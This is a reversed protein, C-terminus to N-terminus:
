FSWISIPIFFFLILSPAISSLAHFRSVNARRGPTLATYSASAGLYTRLHCADSYGDLSEERKFGCGNWVTAYTPHVFLGYYRRKRGTHDGCLIHPFCLAGGELTEVVM